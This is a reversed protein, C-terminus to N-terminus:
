CRALSTQPSGGRRAKHIPPFGMVALRLPHGMWVRREPAVCVSQACRPRAPSIGALRAPPRVALVAGRQGHQACQLDALVDQERPGPRSPSGRHGALDTGSRRHAARWCGRAHVQKAQTTGHQGIRILEANARWCHWAYPAGRRRRGSRIPSWRRYGACRAAHHASLAPHLDGLVQGGGRLSYGTAAIM